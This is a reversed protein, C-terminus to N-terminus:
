DTLNVISSQSVDIISFGKKDDIWRHAVRVNRIAIRSKIYSVTQLDENYIKDLSQVRMATYLGLNKLAHQKSIAWTKYPNFQTLENFGWAWYHDGSLLVRNETLQVPARLPMHVKQSEITAAKDSILYFVLGECVMSDVKVVNDFGFQDGIAVEEQTQFASNERYQEITVVVFANSNMDEVANEFARSYSKEPAFASFESVGIGWLGEPPHVFWSPYSQIPVIESVSVPQVKVTENKTSACGTILLILVIIKTTKVM